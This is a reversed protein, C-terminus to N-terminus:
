GSVHVTGLIYSGDAQREEIALSLPAYYNDPDVIQIAIWYSGDPVTTPLHFTDNVTRPTDTGSTNTPLLTQLDLQSKGQWAVAGSDSRLQVMINWPNYAPTVNVNSWKTIVTFGGGAEIQSPTTLSDLVFRYGSTKNNQVMLNQESSSYSSWPAINSNSIMAVHYTNIQDSALSSGGRGSNLYCYETVLPATQWRDRVIPYTRYLYSMRDTFWQDGLCDNRIGVRASKGLAYLLGDTDATDNFMTQHQMLLYQKPFVALMTDMLHHGNASTIKTAGTPSPDYPWQDVHWEAWDGYLSADVFGLRPDNGYRNGLAQLLADARSIFNPDNWDPAYVSQGGPYTFWFGKPM